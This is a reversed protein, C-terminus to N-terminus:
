VGHYQRHIGDKKVLKKSQPAGQEKAVGFNGTVGLTKAYEALRLYQWRKSLGIPLQWCPRM